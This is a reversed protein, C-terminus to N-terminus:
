SLSILKTRIEDAAVPRGYLYGQVDYCGRSVLFEKQEVTEVGEAIIGLKLSKSVAIIADVIAADDNNTTIDIIFSRDIKIKDIPLHKLYALSSYGTGFDDIAIKIGFDSIQTLVSIATDANSMLQGETLELCIWDPSCGTKLLMSQIFSVFDENEIQEISINISIRGFDLNQDHWEKAQIMAMNMVQRNIGVVMGFEDALDIFDGPFVLGREKDQWRVLAEMGILVDTRMDYQPQYYVIFEKEELARRIRVQMDVRHLVETTMDEVYFNYANRGDSKSRYMAIDAHRLLENPDTSDQPYMSIGISCTIFLEEKEVEIRTGFIDLIKQALVSASHFKQIDNMIIIFEDGGLRALTDDKRMINQLLNAVKILLKDGYEHGYTDNVEKFQDLDIFFIAFKESNRSAKYISQNLRDYFLTRNPLKTLSDYNAQYSLTDKQANIENNYNNLESIMHKFNKALDGIEDNNFAPIDHNLNKTKIIQTTVEDLRAIPQLISQQLIVRFRSTSLLAIIIIFIIVAYHKVIRVYFEDLSSVIVLHGLKINGAIIPVVSYFFGDKWLNQNEIIIPIIKHQQVFNNGKHFAGLMKWSKNLAFAQNIKDNYEISALTNSIAIVDDKIVSPAINDALIKAFVKSQEVTLHRESTYQFIFLLSLVVTSAILASSYGLFQLKKAISLKNYFLLLSKFM